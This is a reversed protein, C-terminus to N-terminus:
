LNSLMLEKKKVVVILRFGNNSFGGGADEVANWRTQTWCVAIEEFFQLHSTGVVARNRQSPKIKDSAGHM